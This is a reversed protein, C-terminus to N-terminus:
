VPRPAYRASRFVLDLALRHGEVLMIAEEQNRGKSVNEFGRLNGAATSRAFVTGNRVIVSEGTEDDRFFRAVGDRQRLCTWDICFRGLREQISREDSATRRFDEKSFATLGILEGISPLRIMQGKVRHGIRDALQRALSNTPIDEALTRIVRVQNDVWSDPMKMSPDSWAEHRMTSM